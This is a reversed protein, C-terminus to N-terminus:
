LKNILEIARNIMDDDSYYVRYFADMGVVNRGVIAKLYMKLRGRSYAEYKRDIEIGNKKAYEIFEDVIKDTIQFSNIFTDVNNYRKLTERHKDTYDLAFSTILGANICKNFYVYKASTDAPIFHDPMIGGGGYVTRGRVTQYKVTDDFRVSDKNFMEKGVREYFKEYYDERNNKEFPRQICRGSPTFYKAVTLRVASGDSLPIQQQVLGKGFSRRGIVMGRDNDQMAGAVIESASASNENILIVLHGNTFLGGNSSTHQYKPSNLGETYVILRGGDLFEDCIGVAAELYGGTNDRLDLILQTMGEIKLKAIARRVEDYTTASFKSLSILGTKEDIMYSVDVSYTPIKDRVVEFSLPKMVGHRVIELRVKSGKEGKLRKMIDKTTMKVGAVIEEDVKVIRDGALIGVKESPGGKLPVIVVLTDKEIQFQVGIGEFNGALDENASELEEAKIYETHPDLDEVMARIAIDELEANNVSDVYRNNIIGLVEDLKGGRFISYSDGNMDNRLCYGLIVGLILLLAFVIPLYVSKKM